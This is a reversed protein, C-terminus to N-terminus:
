KARCDILQSGTLAPDEKDYYPKSSGAHPHPCNFWHTFLAWLSQGIVTALTPSGESHELDPNTGMEYMITYVSLLFFLLSIFMNLHELVDEYQFDLEIMKSESDSIDLNTM